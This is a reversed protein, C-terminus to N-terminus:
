EFLPVHAAQSHHVLQEARQILDAVGQETLGLLLWPGGSESAPALYRGPGLEILGPQAALPKHAFRALSPEAHPAPVAQGTRLDVAAVLYLAHPLTANPLQALRRLTPASLAPPLPNSPSLKALPQWDPDADESYYPLGDLSRGNDISYIRTPTLPQWLFNDAYNADGHNILALFTWLDAIARRYGLDSRFREPNWLEGHFRLPMVADDIWDTLAGLVLHDNIAPFTAATDPGMIKPVARCARDCPVNRHFARVVVEPVLQREPAAPFLFRDIHRAALECRPANNGEIGDQKESAQPGLPKWKAHILCAPGSDEKRCDTRSLTLRYVTPNVQTVATLTLDQSLLAQQSPSPRPSPPSLRSLYLEGAPLKQASPSEAETSLVYVPRDQAIAQEIDQVSRTPTYFRLSLTTLHETQRLDAPTQGLYKQVQPTRQTYLQFYSVLLRDDVLIEAAPPLWLDLWTVLDKLPLTPVEPLALYAAVRDAKHSAAHQSHGLGLGLLAVLATAVAMRLGHWRAASLLGLTGLLVLCLSAPAWSEPNTPEFFFFHGLLLLPWAVLRATVAPAACLAQRGLWLAGLGGLGAEWLLLPAPREGFLWTRLGRYCDLLRQPVSQPVSLFEGSLHYELYFRLLGPGSRVGGPGIGLWVLFPGLLAAATLVIRLQARLLDKKTKHLLLDVLLWVFLLGSLLHIATSLALLVGLVSQQQRASLRAFGPLGLDLLGRHQLYLLLFLSSALQMSEKEQGCLVLQWRGGALLYVLCALSATLTKQSAQPQLARAALYLLAMNGGLSFSERVLVAMLPDDTFLLFPATLPIILPHAFFLWDGLPAARGQHLVSATMLADWQPDAGFHFLLQAATALAGILLAPLLPSRRPGLSRAIVLSLLTVPLLLPAAILLLGSATLMGLVFGNNEHFFLAAPDPAQQGRRSLFLGAYGGAALATAMVLLQTLHSFAAHETALASVGLLIPALMALARAPRDRRMTPPASPDHQTWKAGLLGGLLWCLVVVFWATTSASLGRMAVFGLTVQICALAFGTVFPEGLRQALSPRPPM